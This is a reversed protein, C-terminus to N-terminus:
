IVEMECYHKDAGDEDEEQGHRARTPAGNIHMCGLVQSNEGELVAEDFNDLARRAQCGCRSEM